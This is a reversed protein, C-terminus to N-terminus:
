AALVEVLGENIYYIERRVPRLLGMSALEKLYHSATQRKAVGARELLMIRAYPQEFLADVLDRSYIRPREAKIKEATADMLPLIANVKKLTSKATVEIADLLYLIWPEWEQRETVGQLLAYFNTKHEIVYRSLYLM